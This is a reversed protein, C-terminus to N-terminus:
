GYWLLLWWFALTVARAWPLLRPVDTTLDFPTGRWREWLFLPLTQCDMPLPMTGKKMLAHHSGTRWFDLGSTLYFPEDFTAGLQRAATVCWLSSLLAWTLFWLGDLIQERRSSRGM